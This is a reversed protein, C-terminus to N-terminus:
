DLETGQTSEDAPTVENPGLRLGAIKAESHTPVGMEYNRQPM